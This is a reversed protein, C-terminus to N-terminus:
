YQHRYGIGNDVVVVFVCVNECDDFGDLDNLVVVRVTSYDRLFFFM